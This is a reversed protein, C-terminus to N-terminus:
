PGVRQMDSRIMIASLLQQIQRLSQLAAIDPYSQIDQKLGSWIIQVPEDQAFSKADSLKFQGPYLVLTMKSVDSISSLVESSHTQSQQIVKMRHRIAVEDFALINNDSLLDYLQDMEIQNLYVVYHGARRMYEPYFIQAMGDRYLHLSPTRDIGAILNPTEAYHVVLTQPDPDPKDQAAFGSVSFLVGFLAYFITVIRYM